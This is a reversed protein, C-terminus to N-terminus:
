PADQTSDHYNLWWETFFEATEEPTKSGVQEWRNPDTLELLAGNIAEWLRIDAPLAITRIKTGAALSDPTPFGM